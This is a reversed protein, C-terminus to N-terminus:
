LPVTDPTYGDIFAQAYVFPKFASGPQRGPLATAVNYAGDTTTSFYNESGMMALIDGDTPDLAVMAANSANFTALNSAAFNSMTKEMEDQMTADLSTIITWGNEQLADAGFEQELLGEVYFVFHPARIGGVAQPLFTVTESKAQQYQTM